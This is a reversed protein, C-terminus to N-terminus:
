RRKNCCAMYWLVGAIVVAGVVQSTTIGSPRKEDTASPVIQKISQESTQSIEASSLTNEM